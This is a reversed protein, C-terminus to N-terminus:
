TGPGIPRLVATREGTKEVKVVSEDTSTWEIDQFTANYPAVSCTLNMSKGEVLPLTVNSNVLHLSVAGIEIWKAYVTTHALFQYTSTVREQWEGYDLYWGGFLYRDRTATPITPLTGDSLTRLTEYECEGGNADFTVRYLM